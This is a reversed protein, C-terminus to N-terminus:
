MNLVRRLFGMVLPNRIAEIIRKEFRLSYFDKEIRFLLLASSCRCLLWWFFSRKQKYVSLIYQFYLQSMIFEATKKDMWVDPGNFWNTDCYSYWEEFRSPKKFGLEICDNMIPTNPTPLLKNLKPAASSNERLLQIVLKYSKVVDEKTEYPLGLILGYQVRIHTHALM